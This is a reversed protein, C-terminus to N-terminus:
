PGGAGKLFNQLGGFPPLYQSFCFPPGGKLARNGFNFLPAGFEVQAWYPFTWGRSFSGLFSVVQKWYVGVGTILKPIRGEFPTLVSSVRNPVILLCGLRSRLHGLLFTFHLLPFPVHLFRHRLRYICFSHINSAHSHSQCSLLLSFRLSHSSPCM